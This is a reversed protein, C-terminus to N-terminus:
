EFQSIKISVLELLISYPDWYSFLEDSDKM